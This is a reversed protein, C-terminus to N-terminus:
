IYLDNYHLIYHHVVTIITITDDLKPCKEIDQLLMASEVEFSGGVRGPIM